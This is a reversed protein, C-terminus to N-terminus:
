VGLDGQQASSVLDSSWVGYAGSLLTRNGFPLRGAISFPTSREADSVFIQSHVEECHAWSPTACSGDKGMSTHEIDSLDTM